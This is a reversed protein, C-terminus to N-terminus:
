FTYRVAFQLQKESSSVPEGLRARQLLSGDIVVAETGLQWHSSLDFLYAATWAHADQAGNFFQAGRATDTNMRDYRITARHPGNGYSLLAFWASYDTVLMGRGDPSPGVGTEGDLYQTILTFDAPLELRVGLADFRTLWTPERGDMATVDGRNDYHFIRAVHGATWKVEAGAYYGVRDDVEDFFEIDRINPDRVIPRPLAGFLPSQRDHIAWGRQFILVGAPDNWGYLAGFVNVDFSRGATAGALTMSTEVGITRFEEGLWTNIASPSISYLSQWGVARNELSVAPYFAGIRTRWRLSNHPYPRWELYAETLDIPNQDGDGTAYATAAYRLTETIPGTVDLMLSGLRLGDHAEDYRLLGLGGEAFSAYPSDIAVMRLDLQATFVHTEAAADAFAASTWLMTLAVALGPSRM